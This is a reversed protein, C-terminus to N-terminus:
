DKNEKKEDEENEKEMKDVKSKMREIMDINKDIDDGVKRFGTRVKHMKKLKPDMAHVELRDKVKQDLANLKQKVIDKLGM